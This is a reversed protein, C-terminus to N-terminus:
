PASALTQDRGRRRSWAPGRLLLLLAALMSASPAPISACGGERRVSSAVVAESENGAFDVTTVVVDTGDETRNGVSVHGTDYSVNFVEGDIVVRAVEAPDVPEITIVRVTQGVPGGCDGFFSEVLGGSELHEVTVSAPAPPIVDNDDVVEFAVHREGNDQGGGSIILVWGGPTLAVDSVVRADAGERQVQAGVFTGNSFLEITDGVAVLEDITNIWLDANLPVRKDEFTFRPGTNDSFISCASSPLAHLATTAALALGALTSTKM